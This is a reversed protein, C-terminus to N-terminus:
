ARSCMAGLHNSWQVVHAPCDQLYQDPYVTTIDRIVHCCQLCQCQYQPITIILGCRLVVYICGTTVSPTIHDTQRDTPRDTVITLGAFRSFQDVHRKPISEPSGFSGYYSPDVDGHLAAVILPFHRRMIFYLFERCHATCFRSYWDFHLKLCQTPHIRHVM